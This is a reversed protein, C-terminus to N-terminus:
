FGYTSAPYGAPFARPPITPPTPEITQKSAFTFGNFVTPLVADCVNDVFVEHVLSTHVTEGAGPPSGNLWTINYLIATDDSNRVISTIYGNRGTSPNDVYVLCGEFATDRVSIWQNPGDPDEITPTTLVGSSYTVGEAGITVFPFPLWEGFALNTENPERTFTVGKFRAQWTQWPGAVWPRNADGHLEGGIVRLQRACLRSGSVSDVNKLLVLELGTASQVGSKEMAPDLTSEGGNMVFRTSLKDLESNGITCSDLHAHRSQSICFNYATVDKFYQEIAEAYFFTRPTEDTNPNLAFVIDQMHVRLTARCGVGGIPDRDVAILRAKGLSNTNSANEWYNDRHTWRLKRDLTIV